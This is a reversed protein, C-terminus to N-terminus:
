AFDSTGFADVIGGAAVDYVDFVGERQLVREVTQPHNQVRGVTGAILHGRSNELFEAGLDNM